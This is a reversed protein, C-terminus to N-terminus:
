TESRLLSREDAHTLVVLPAPRRLSEIASALVQEGRFRRDLRSAGQSGGADVPLLQWGPVVTVGPPGIIVAAEGSALQRSIESLPSAPLRALRDQSRRLAMAREEFAARGQRAYTRTAEPVGQRSAVEKLLTSATALQDSWTGHNSALALRASDEDPLPQQPSTSRLRRVAQALEGSRDAYEGLAARLAALPRDVEDAGSPPLSSMAAAERRAFETLLALEREGEDLVAAVRGARDSAPETGRGAAGSGAAGAAKEADAMEAREAAQTIEEILTEWAALAAPDTPDIRRAQLSPATESFRRLVEDIQRRTAPATSLDSAAVTISWSGDLGELLRQTRESLAYARTRTLDIEARAEPLSAFVIGAVALAGASLGRLIAQSRGSVASAGGARRSRLSWTAAALAAVSLLVFYGVHATDLLGLTFDRLRRLPDAADLLRSLREPVMPPLLRCCLTLVLWAFMAVVYAVLQSSGLTSALIGSALCLGGFLLVGGAGCLMEGYDPRGHRELALALVATPALVVMLTALAALFKGLVIAGERVPASALTEYTGLRLEESVSRMTIAPAAFVLIWGAAQFLERLTAPGGNRFIAIAFVAGCPVLFLAVLVWGSLTAFTALLDRRAVALTGTV